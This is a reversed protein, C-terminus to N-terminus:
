AQTPSIDPFLHPSALLMLVSSTSMGMDAGAAGVTFFKASEGVTSFPNERLIVHAGESNLPIFTENFLVFQM